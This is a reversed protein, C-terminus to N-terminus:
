APREGLAIEALQQKLRKIESAQKAVTARLVRLPDPSEDAAALALKGGQLFRRKWSEFDEEAIGHLDCVAASTTRGQLVDLVLGAKRKGDWSTANPLHQAFPELLAIVEDATAPRAAPDRARLRDVLAALGAPADPRAEGLPRPPQTLLRQLRQVVNSGAVPLEATLLYFLTTGLSYLDSRPDARAADEAQEPAMFEPTGLCAGKMTLGSDNEESEKRALGLDSLKVTRERTLLLNAPKLDRHVIGCRHAYSLARSTQIAYSVAEPVPLPGRQKVLAALDSGEIYELVLFIQTRTQIVEFARAIHPHNLRIVIDIERRFRALLEDSQHLSGNDLTKLAVLRHPPISHRAKFVIGSGGRGICDLVLYQGVRFSSAGARLQRVQFPTLLGEQVLHDALADPDDGVVQGAAAIQEASLLGSDTLRQGFTSPATSPHQSVTDM